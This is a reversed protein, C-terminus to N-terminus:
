GVYYFSGNAYCLASLGVHCFLVALVPTLRFDKLSYALFNICIIIFFFIKIKVNILKHSNAAACVLGVMSYVFMGALVKVMPLGM